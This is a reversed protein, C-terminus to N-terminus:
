PVYVPNLMRKKLMWVMGIAILPFLLLAAYYYRSYYIAIGNLAQDSFILFFYRFPFLYSLVGLSGYMASVPFSIAALSFTLIGLLSCLTVSLRLNPVACCIILSFAQCAVVMLMMAVIMHMAHNNLPFHNFKFLIVEIVGGVAWWIVTQPLLKGALAVYINNGATKLWQLSTGNKIEYCVSAATVQLIFMAMLCFIFSAALYYNYNMWPNGIPNTQVVVPQVMAMSMDEPVGVKVMKTVAMGGVTTVAVTKFGRLAMTGPVYYTLNSFYSLTPQQGSMAKKQFDSPILFFGMTAGTRVSEMAKHFSEEETKIEILQSSNLMRILQRSIASHDQDVVAVPVPVPLGSDMLNLFFFTAALPVVIMLGVYIRRSVLTRCGRILSEKLVGM